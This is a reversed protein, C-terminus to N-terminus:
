LDNFCMVQYRSPPINTRKRYCCNQLFFFRKYDCVIRVWIVLHLCRFFILSCTCYLHCDPYVFYCWYFIFYWCCCVFCDVFMWFLAFPEPLIMEVPGYWSGQATQIDRYQGGYWYSNYLYLGNLCIHNM